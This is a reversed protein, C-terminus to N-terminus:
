KRVPGENRWWRVENSGREASGVIDLRGDGNLDALLVQNALPWKDKLVQMSWEGRPDGDHKFLAIRGEDAWSSAVVEIQGDGDLDGAVAEFANPFYEAIIHKRWPGRGPKGGHEYWAIQHYKPNHDWNGMGLAMVVDVGGDGDMDCPHGHIPRAASDIVTKRWPKHIPDGPNKYWVVEGERSATGLVDIRGDGDIDVPCVTRTEMIFPDIVHKIWDGWRKEYWAFQNGKRWSSAVVSLTGNGMLDGTAVDYAGPLLGQDIYRMPWPSQRPDRPNEFWLVCGNTNDIIVVDLWGDDNMDALCHRELLEGRESRQERIVHKTFNGKGDNEFWYLGVYGDASVLDLDGDGDIDGASIGYAYNYGDAVLHETFQIHETTASKSKM